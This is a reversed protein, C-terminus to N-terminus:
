SPCPSWPENWESELMLDQCLKCSQKFLQIPLNMIPIFSALSKGQAKSLESGRLSVSGVQFVIALSCVPCAESCSLGAAIHCSRGRPTGSAAVPIDMSHAPCDDQSLRSNHPLSCLVGGNVVPLCSGTPLYEIM